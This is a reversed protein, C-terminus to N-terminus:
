SFDMKWLHGTWVWWGCACCYQSFRPQVCGAHAAEAKWHYKEHGPIDSSRNRLQSGSGDLWCEVGMIEM